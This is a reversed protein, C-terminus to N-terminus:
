LRFGRGAGRFGVAIGGCARFFGGLCRGYVRTQGSTSHLHKCRSGRGGSSIVLNSIIHGKPPIISREGDRRVMYVDIDGAGGVARSIGYGVISAIM